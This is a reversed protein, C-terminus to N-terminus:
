GYNLYFNDYIIQLKILNDQFKIESSNELRSIIESIQSIQFQYDANDPFFAKLEAFTIKLDPFYRSADQKNKAAAIKEVANGFKLVIDSIDSIKAEQRINSLSQKIMKLETYAQTLNHNKANGLSRGLNDSIQNIKDKWRIVRIYESPQQDGFNKEINIWLRFAELLASQTEDQKNDRAALLAKKYFVNFEDAAQKFTKEKVIVSTENHDANKGILLFIAFASLLLFLGFIIMYAKKGNLINNM